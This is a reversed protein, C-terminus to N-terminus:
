GPTRRWSRCRTRWPRRARDQWATGSRARSPRPARRRPRRSRRRRRAGSGWPHPRGGATADGGERAPAGIGLLAGRPSRLLELDAIPLLDLGKSSSSSFAAVGAASGTGPRAAVAGCRRARRAREPAVPAGGGAGAGRVSAEVVPPGGEPERPLGPGGRSHSAGRGGAGRLHRALRAAAVSQLQDTFLDREPSSSRRRGPLFECPRGRGTAGGAGPDGRLESSSGRPGRCRRSRVELGDGHRIEVAADIASGSVPARGRHHRSQREPVDGQEDGERLRRARGHGDRGRRGRHLGQGGGLRPGARSRAGVSRGAGKRAAHGPWRGRGRQDRRHDRHRRGPRGDRRQAARRCPAARRDRPRRGRRPLPRRGAWRRSAATEPAPPSGPRPGGSLVKQEGIGGGSSSARQGFPAVGRMTRNM